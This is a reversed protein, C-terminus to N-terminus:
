KGEQPFLTTATGGRMAEAHSQARRLKHADDLAKQKEAQLEAFEPTNSYDPKWGTAVQFFEGNETLTSIVYLPKGTLRDTRLPDVSVILRDM